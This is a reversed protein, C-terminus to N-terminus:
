QHRTPSIWRCARLRGSNQEALSSLQDAHEPKRCAAFILVDHYQLYQRVLELGIGRNAGTILIRQM